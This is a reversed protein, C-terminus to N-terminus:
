RGRRRWRCAPARARCRWCAATRSPRSRTTSPAPSPPCVRSNIPPPADSLSHPCGVTGVSSVPCTKSFLCRMVKFSFSAESRKTMVASIAGGTDQSAASRIALAAGSLPRASATLTVSPAPARAWMPETAAAAIRIRSPMSGIRCSVQRSRLRMARCLSSIAAAASPMRLRSSSLPSSGSAPRGARRWAPTRSRCRPASRPPPPSARCPRAASRCSPRRCPALEEDGRGVHRDIRRGAPLRLAELGLDRGAALEHLRLEAHIGAHHPAIM